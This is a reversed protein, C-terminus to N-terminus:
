PKTQLWAPKKGRFNCIKGLYREIKLLKIGGHHSFQTPNCGKLLGRPIM